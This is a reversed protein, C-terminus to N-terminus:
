IKITLSVSVEIWLKKGKMKLPVQKLRNFHIVKQDNGWLRGKPDLAWVKLGPRWGTTPLQRWTSGIGGLKLQNEGGGGRGGGGGGGWMGSDFTKQLTPIASISEFEVRYVM